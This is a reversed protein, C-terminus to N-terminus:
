LRWWFVHLYYVPIFLDYHCLLHKLFLENEFNNLLMLLSNVDYGTTYVWLMHIQWDYCIGKLFHVIRPHVGRYTIVAILILICNRWQIYKEYWSYSCNTHLVVNVVYHTYRLGVYIFIIINVAMSIIYNKNKILLGVYHITGLANNRKSIM